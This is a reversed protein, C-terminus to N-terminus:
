DPLDRQSESWFLHQSDHRRISAEAMAEIYAMLMQSLRSCFSNVLKGSEVTGLPALCTYIIYYMEKSCIRYYIKMGKLIFDLGNM